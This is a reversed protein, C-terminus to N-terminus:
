LLFFSFFVFWDSENRKKKIIRTFINNSIKKWLVLNFHQQHPLNSTPPASGGVCGVGGRSSVSQLCSSSKWHSWFLVRATLGEARHGTSRFRTQIQGLIKLNRPSCPLICWSTDQGADRSGRNLRWTPPPIHSDAHSLHQRESFHPFFHQQVLVWKWSLCCASKQSIENQHLQWVKVVEHWKLVKM